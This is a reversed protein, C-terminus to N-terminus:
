VGSQNRIWDPTGGAYPSDKGGAPFDQEQESQPDSM